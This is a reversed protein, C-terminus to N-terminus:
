RAEEERVLTDLECWLRLAFAYDYHAFSSEMAARAADRAATPGVCCMFGAYVQHTRMRESAADEAARGAITRAWRLAKLRDSM